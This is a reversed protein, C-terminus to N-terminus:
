LCSCDAFNFINKERGSQPIKMGTSATFLRQSKNKNYFLFIYM